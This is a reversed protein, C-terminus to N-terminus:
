IKPGGRENYLVDNALTPLQDFQLPDILAAIHLPLPPQMDVAFDQKFCVDLAIRAAFRHVGVQTTQRGISVDGPPWVEPRYPLFRDKGLTTRLSRPIYPQRKIKGDFWAFAIVSAAALRLADERLLGQESLFIPFQEATVIRGAANPLGYMVGAPSKAESRSLVMAPLIVNYTNKHKGVVAQSIKEIVETQLDASAITQVFNEWKIEPRLTKLNSM